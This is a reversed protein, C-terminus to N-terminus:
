CSLLLLTDNPLEPKKVNTHIWENKEPDSGSPYAVIECIHGYLEWSWHEYNDGCLVLFETPGDEIVVAEFGLYSVVTGKPLAPKM